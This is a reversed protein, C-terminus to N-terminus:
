SLCPWYGSRGVKEWNGVGLRVCCTLWSVEQPIWHKRAREETHRNGRTMVQRDPLKLQMGKESSYDKAKRGQVWCGLVRCGGPKGSSGSCHRCLLIGQHFLSFLDSTGMGHSWERLVLM